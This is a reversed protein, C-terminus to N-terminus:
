YQYTPPLKWRRSSRSVTNNLEASPLLTTDFPGFPHFPDANASKAAHVDYGYVDSPLGSPAVGSTGEMSMDSRRGRNGAVAPPERAATILRDLFRAHLAITDRDTYAGGEFRDRVRQCLDM